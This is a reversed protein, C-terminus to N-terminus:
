CTGGKPSEKVSSTPSPSHESVEPLEVRDVFSERESSEGNSSSGIEQSVSCALKEETAQVDAELPGKPTSSSTEKSSPDSNSNSSTLWTFQLNYSKWCKGNVYAREASRRTIYTIIVSCNKLAGSGMDDDNQVDELEVSFLDGYQLFHEKLIDVDAFGSPLPPTVRFATPRNDLNYKNTPFPHGVPASPHSQQKSSMSEQLPIPTNSKPSHSVANEMSKSKDTMGITCLTAGSAGPESSSPTSVKAPDAITGVKQRKSAQETLLDGKPGSSQKELKDLQRRFDNRKQELMEQKKRLEEKMQELTELKKQLPPPIKPGNMSVPKPSLSPVDAGHVVNSKSQLSDKGKNSAPQAPVLSATLGRQTVSVGNGSNIGDDPISDRNAWWLKIFRNGMVADPAKLAAEAEERRSFQVFARESNLPIYIDIVEGFKHFHSLLAERKNSKQPIGNVFLTRLAKQNPKRSNCMGDTESKFSSDMVKSGDDKIGTRKVQCSTGQSSPFAEQEEKAENELYDSPTLDIKEKTDIKSRSSGIRGWVSLSTSQLGTSRIPLENDASDCLRGHHRDSLDDNLLTKTEDIKPSHLGSIAASAEPGNNNWLPQDPDYLDAGSASTSGTYAGNLGLADDTMGPKSSKSHIGKNNLLNTSPPVGSPLSGPAAPTALLASPVTVPLNFQSLSQVDEVVIRNVGHEMPCMDGRLCFGREEFDRCRQHPIGLNLSNMPPRLAGQLGIPHLSELGGNPIGAMLGFASWSPSQANSVNPLGRGAFLSPVVSGPQVMQSAVGVSNFRSDRQNWSSNDRGRGRGPGSDGSFTQNSRIRQNLDLHGRPFSALGLRRRDFKSTLDKELPLSNYNKWTEDAQSENERFPHGNEFPKNRKRCPRTFVPDMSDRELSQSCTERRRHKHNRDDDDEDSVEKEEPDSVCDPPSLGGLNPSSAKLEMPDGQFLQRASQFSFRGFWGRPPQVESDNMLKDLVMNLDVSQGNETLKRVTARVHDRPFGMSTVKDVVDDVPVRNGPGSPGSGAGVGSATPLAHQLMRATPLQPYGSGASQGMPSSSLQQMKMPSGSSYQSLSGGYAYPESPGSQPIYGTSFGPGPRTSPPEHMQPPAGYYQQSSPPGSPPQSPPQRLNPPYAQSPVYPAEEPHHGLSPQLQHPQPPQSFQPQPVPQYPQHPAAAPPLLPQQTPPMPFQQSSTEQTQGPPPYYADQQPVSPVQNQLFQSSSQVPPPLNQQPLAPPPVTPPLPPPVSPLSQPFSPAPPLQQHSQFPAAAAQQVSDMQTSNQTESPKDGKTVQLKALQLQAEMIEQKEILVHVGTQVEKLINELQRMKGDASGHNSGVSVKLDDVSTELHRTRSELQTLRASVSELMHMLNDTYNKITRDIEVVISSDFANRDKELIVKAPEISDLSGYNKSKSDISSWSRLNNNNVGAADLSTSVPRIAQFDYSPFIEEKNNIGNNASGFGSSQNHNDEDQPHNMLDIFDKNTNQPPSSSSSSTLDMIQKDMFQSTNM